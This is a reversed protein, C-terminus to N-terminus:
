YIKSEERITKDAATDEALDIYKEASASARQRLHRAIRPTNFNMLALQRGRTHRLDHVSHDPIDAARCLRTFLAQVGIPTMAGRVKFRHPFLYPNDPHATRVKLYKGLLHWLEDPVEDYSRRLGNKIGTITASLNDQDFTDLRLEAAERSRLGFFLILNFLLNDRPSLKAKKFFRVLEDESLYRVQGKRGTGKPRGRNM